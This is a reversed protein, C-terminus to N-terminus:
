EGRWGKFNKLNGKIVSSTASHSLKLVTEQAAKFTVKDILKFQETLSLYTGTALLQKAVDLTASRNNENRLALKTKLQTKASEIAQETLEAGILPMRDMVLKTIQAEEGANGAAYVGFLGNDSYAHQFGFVKQQGYVNPQGDLIQSLVSITALQASGYKCGEFAIGAYSHDDSEIKL